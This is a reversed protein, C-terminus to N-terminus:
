PSEIHCSPLLSGYTKQETKTEQLDVALSKIPDYGHNM